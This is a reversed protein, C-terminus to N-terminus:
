RGPSGVLHALKAAAKELVADWDGPTDPFLPTVSPQFPEFDSGLTTWERMRMLRLTPVGLAGALGSVMTPATIVLDLASMLGAVGPFDNMQDLDPFEHIEIGFKKRARDLETACEDYQLNVFCANKQSLIPGWDDLDSYDKRREATMLMSRWCIGVKLGDGLAGLKVRWEDSVNAKAKLYKNPRPFDSINRRLLLPLGGLEIYCDPPPVDSLWDYSFVWRGDTKGGEYAHVTAEPFSQEFLAVLRAECEIICHGTRAILDPLCSAFLVQDGLGQEACVLVTRGDLPEGRWRNLGHRYDIARSMGPKLRCEYEAWGRELDGLALLTVAFNFRVQPDKPLLAMAKEFHVMAERPNGEDCSLEALNAYAEGYKPKLSLAQQYFIRANARDATAAQAKGLSLWLEPVDPEREIAARLTQVAAEYEGMAVLVNGLNNAAEVADPRRHLVAGYLDAAKTPSGLRDSVVALSFLVDPDGPRMGHARELENIADQYRSRAIM